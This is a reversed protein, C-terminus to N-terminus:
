FKCSYTYDVHYNKREFPSEPYIKILTNDLDCYKSLEATAAGHRRDDFLLLQHLTVRAFGRDVYKTLADPNPISDYFYNEYYDAVIKEIKHKVLFEPTAILNFIIFGIVALMAFIIVTTISNKSVDSFDRSTTKSVAPSVHVNQARLGM